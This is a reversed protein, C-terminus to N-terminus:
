FGEFDPLRDFGRRTMWVECIIYACEDGDRFDAFDGPRIVCPAGRPESRVVLYRRPVLCYSIWRRLASAFTSM